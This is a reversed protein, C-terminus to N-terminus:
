NCASQPIKAAVEAQMARLRKRLARDRKPLSKNFRDMDGDDEVAGDWAAQLEEAQEHTCVFDSKSSSGTIVTRGTCAREGLEPYCTSQGQLPVSSSDSGEAKLSATLREWERDLTTTDRGAMECMCSQDAVRAIQEFQMAQRKPDPAKPTPADMPADCGSILIMVTTVIALVRAQM